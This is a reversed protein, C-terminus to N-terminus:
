SITTTTKCLFFFLLMGAHTKRLFIGSFCDIKNAQGLKRSKDKGFSKVKHQLDLIKCQSSLRTVGVVYYQRQGAEVKLKILTLIKVAIDTNSLM